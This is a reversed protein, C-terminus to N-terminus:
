VLRDIAKIIAAGRLGWGGKERETGKELRNNEQQKCSLRLQLKGLFGRDTQFFANITGCPCGRRVSSEKQIKNSLKKSDKVNRCINSELTM